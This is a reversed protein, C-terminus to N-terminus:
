SNYWLWKIFYYITIGTMGYCSAEMAKRFPENIEKRFMYAFFSVGFTFFYVRTFYEEIQNM